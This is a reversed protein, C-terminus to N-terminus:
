KAENKMTDSGYDRGHVSAIRIETVSTFLAPFHSPDTMTVAECRGSSLFPNLNQLGDPPKVFFSILMKASLAADLALSHYSM